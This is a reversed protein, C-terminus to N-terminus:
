ELVCHCTVCGMVLWVNTEFSCACFWSLQVNRWERQSSSWSHLSWHCTRCVTSVDPPKKNQSVVIPSKPDNCTGKWTTVGTFVLCWVRVELARVLAELRSVDKLVARHHAGFTVGFWTLDVHGTSFWRDIQAFCPAQKDLAPDTVLPFCLFIRILLGPSVWPAKHISRGHYTISHWKWGSRSGDLAELRGTRMNRWGENGSGGGTARRWLRNQHVSQRFLMCSHHCVCVCVFFIIGGSEVM